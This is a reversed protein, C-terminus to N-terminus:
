ACRKYTFRPGEEQRILTDGQRILAVRATWEQGEGSFGFNGEFRDPTAAIVRDLTARSEYFHLRDGDIRLLGKADGRTSTCDAPVMGWRGRFVEPIKTATAATPLTPAGDGEGVAAAATEDVPLADVDKVPADLQKQEESVAADNTSPQQCSALLIPLLLLVRTM